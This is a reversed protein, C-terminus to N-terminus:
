GIKKEDDPYREKKRSWGMFLNIFDKAVKNTMKWQLSDLKRVDQPLMEDATYKHNAMPDSKNMDETGHSRADTKIAFIM